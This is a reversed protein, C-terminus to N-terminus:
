EDFVGNINGLENYQNLLRSFCVPTKTRNDYEGHQFMTSNQIIKGNLNAGCNMTTTFIRGFSVTCKLTSGLWDNKM